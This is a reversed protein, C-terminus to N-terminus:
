MLNNHFMNKFFITIILMSTFEIIRAILIEKQM